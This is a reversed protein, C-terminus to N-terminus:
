ERRAAHPAAPLEYKQAIRRLALDRAMQVADLVDQLDDPSAHRYRDQDFLQVQEIGLAELRELLEELTQPPGIQPNEPAYGALLLAEDVDGGVARALRIVKEPEPRLPSGTLSHPRRNEITSIYSESVKARLALERQKLGKEQRRTSLWEAFDKMRRTDYNFFVEFPNFESKLPPLTRLPM